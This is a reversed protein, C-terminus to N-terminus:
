ATNAIRYCKVLLAIKDNSAAGGLHGSQTATITINKNANAKGYCIATMQRGAGDGGTLNGSKNLMWNMGSTSIDLSLTGGSYGWRYGTVATIEVVCDTTTTFSVSPTDANSYYFTTATSDLNLKERTVASSAIKETTVASTAIKGSTVASSDIKDATVASSAVKASTVAGSAIASSGVTGNKLTGNQNHSVLIGTILDDLWGITPNTEVIDGTANGTDAAGALRTLNTITNGSVIGKWDTQTAGDVEGSSNLRYTSFHVPTDTAWGTLDTCYLVSDGATREQSVTGLVPYVGNGGAAKNFYDSITAVM